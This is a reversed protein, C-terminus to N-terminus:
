GRHPPPSRCSEAFSPLVAPPPRAPPRDPLVTRCFWAAPLRTHLFPGRAAGTGALFGGLLLIVTYPLRTIAYYRRAFVGFALCGMFFPLIAISGTIDIDHSGLDHSSLSGGGGTAAAAHDDTMLRAMPM